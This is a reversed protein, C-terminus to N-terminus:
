YWAEALCLWWRVARVKYGCRAVRALLLLSLLDSVVEELVSGSSLQILEM